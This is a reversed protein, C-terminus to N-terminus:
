AEEEQEALDLGHGVLYGEFPDFPRFREDPGPLQGSLIAEAIESARELASPVLDALGEWDQFRTSKEDPGLCVYGGHVRAAGIRQRALHVYLPLQLDVWVDDKLHVRAPDRLSSVSKYDLLCFSGDEHQDIRDISGHVGMRGCPLRVPEEPRWEVEVVRWGSSARTAQRVAFLQLRHRAQDLQLAVAARPTAGFRREAVATLEAELASFLVEPDDCACLDERALVELVRHLLTGFAASDLERAEDTCARLRLENGVHFLLPAQLWKRFGTVPVSELPAHARIRVPPALPPRAPSAVAVRAGGETWHRVRVATEAAAARLLLRSPLAPDGGGGLRPAMWTTRRSRQLVEALHLDRALRDDDAPLDLDRRLAPPLLSDLRPSAPVLGELASTVVLRPAPDMVLELWGLAEVTPASGSPAPPPVRVDEAAQLVRGLHDAASSGSSIEKPVSELDELLRALQRLAEVRPQDAPDDADLEASPAVAELLARLGALTAGRERAAVLPQLVEGTAELARQIRQNRELERRRTGLLEGDLDNALHEAAYADLDGIPVPAGDMLRELAAEFWPHRWLDSFTRAGPERLAAALLRLLRLEPTRPLPTGSGDRLIVGQRAFADTLEPLTAPDLIGVAADGDVPVGELARVAAEAQTPLDAVVTWDELPVELTRELWASRVLRGREDFLGPEDEPGLVLHHLEGDLAELVGDRLPQPEALDVLVVRAGHRVRGEALARRRLDHPDHLGARELLARYAGQLRGFLEWRERERPRTELVACGLVQELDLDAGVLDSHAQRLQAALSSFRADEDAGVRGGALLRLEAPAAGRLVQEWCLTRTLRSAPEGDLELLRDTLAGGTLLEPIGNGLPEAALARRLTRVARGGPLAVLWAHLEDGLETRLWEAIRPIPPGDWGLHHVSCRAM